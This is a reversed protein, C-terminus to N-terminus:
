IKVFKVRASKSLDPLSKKLLRNLRQPFNRVDCPTQGCGTLRPFQDEDNPIRGLSGSIKERGSKSDIREEGCV